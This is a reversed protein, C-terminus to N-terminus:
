INKELKEYIDKEGSNQMDLENVSYLPAINYEELLKQKSETGLMNFIKNIDIETIEEENNENLYKHKVVTDEFWIKITDKNNDRIKKKFAEKAIDNLEYIYNDVKFVCKTSM